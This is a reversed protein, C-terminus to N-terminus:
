HAPSRRKRRIPVIVLAIMSLLSVLSIMKGYYRIPTDEFRMEITHQGEPVSVLMTGRQKEIGIDTSMGDRYVNWGPFYFTRLNLVMPISATTSIIKEESSRHIVEAEGKGEMITVKDPSNDMDINEVTVWVPLHELNWDAGRVPLLKERDFINASSIYRFDLALCAIFLLIIFIIHGNGTRNKTLFGV